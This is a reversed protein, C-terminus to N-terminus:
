LHAVKTKIKALKKGGEVMIRIDKKSKVKIKKDKM